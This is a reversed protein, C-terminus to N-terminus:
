HQQTLSHPSSHSTTAAVAGGGVVHSPKAQFLNADRPPYVQLLGEGLACVGELGNLLELHPLPSEWILLDHWIVWLCIIKLHLSPTTSGQSHYFLSKYWWASKRTKNALIKIVRNNCTSFPMRKGESRGISWRSSRWPTLRRSKWLEMMSTLSRLPLLSNRQSITLM